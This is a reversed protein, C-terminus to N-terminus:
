PSPNTLAWDTGVIISLDVPKTPDYRSFIRNPNIKMLDVLFKITYPKGTYDYITTTTFLSEANGTNTVNVGQNKLFDSTTAALGNTTSGNLVEVKAGEAQM